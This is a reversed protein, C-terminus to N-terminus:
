IKIERYSSYTLDLAISNIQLELIMKTRHATNRILIEDFSRSKFRQLRTM